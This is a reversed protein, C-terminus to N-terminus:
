PPLGHDFEIVGCSEFKGQTDGIEVVVFLSDNMGYAVKCRAASEPNQFGAVARVVALNGAEFRAFSATPFSVQLQTTCPGLGSGRRAAARYRFRTLIRLLEGVLRHRESTVQAALGGGFGPLQGGAWPTNM